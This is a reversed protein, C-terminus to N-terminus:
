PKQNKLIYDIFEKNSNMNDGSNYYILAKEWTGLQIFQEKLFTLGQRLNENNGTANFYKPHLQMYGYCGEYSIVSSDFNSERYILNFVIHEPINLEDALSLVTDINATTFSDPIDYKDRIDYITQNVYVFIFPTKSAELRDYQKIAHDVLFCVSTILIAGIIMLILTKKM